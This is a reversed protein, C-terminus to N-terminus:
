ITPFLPPFIICINEVVNRCKTEEVNQQDVNQIEAFQIEAFQFEVDFRTAEITRRQGPKTRLPRLPPSFFRLRIVTAAMKFEGNPNSKGRSLFISKKEAFM